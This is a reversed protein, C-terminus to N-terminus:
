RCGDSLVPGTEGPPSFVRCLQASVRLSSFYDPTALNVRVRAALGEGTFAADLSGEGFVSQLTTSHDRLAAYVPYPIESRKGIRPLDTVVRYIREPERVPLKRLLVANMASFIVCNSGIGVALLLVAVVAFGPNKRFGRLTYGLPSM